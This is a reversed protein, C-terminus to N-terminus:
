TKDNVELVIQKSVVLLGETSKTKTYAELWCVLMMLMFLFRIHVM